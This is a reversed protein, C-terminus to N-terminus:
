DFELYVERSVQEHTSARVARATLQQNKFGLGEAVTGWLKNTGQGQELANSANLRLQDQEDLVANGTTPNEAYDTPMLNNINVKKKLVPNYEPM